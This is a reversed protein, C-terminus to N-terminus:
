PFTQCKTKQFIIIQYFSKYEEDLHFYSFGVRTLFLKFVCFWYIISFLLESFVTCSAILALIHCGLMLNTGCIYRNVLVDSPTDHQTKCGRFHPSLAALKVSVSSPGFLLFDSLIPISGSWLKITVTSSLDKLCRMFVTQHTCFLLLVNQM